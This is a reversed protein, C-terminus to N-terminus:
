RTGLIYQAKSTPPALPAEIITAAPPAAPCPYRLIVFDPQVGPHRVPAHVSLKPGCVADYARAARPAWYRFPSYTPKPCDKHGFWDFLGARAAAVPWFGAAFVLGAVALRRMRGM